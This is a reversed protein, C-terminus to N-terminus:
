SGSDTELLQTIAAKMEQVTKSGGGVYLRAIKGDKGVIVMQPIARAEYRHAAVGDIDLAVPVSLKHRELVSQVHDAPEELNISVLRVQEPDFDAMAEEVLPMTQMCPACWTAWFDLVVIKGKQESLVFREGDLMDLRIEPAQQGILASEIGVEGGGGPLDQAMLPEVAARLTWRNYPLVSVADRIGDGFLIQDVDGIEFRCTGLVDSTGAISKEDVQQPDFTVRKGDRKLVQALQLFPSVIEAPQNEDEAKQKALLEEPHFWIIQGVRDRPIEFEELQLEVRIMDDRFELLRCRLFDGNRSCLLHTPPSSKQLRPLTLLRKRKADQLNPPSLNPVLELAKVKNHPVLTDDAVATTISVGQENISSVLCPIVDGSRVHLKHADPGVPKAPKSDVKQLFLQGFNLGRKQQQLRLRQMQLAREATRQQQPNVPPPPERYIIKGSTGIRLSSASLCGFPLWRLASVGDAEQETAPVLHGTLKHPGLELRGSRGATEPQDPIPDRKMVILTRAMEHPVRVPTKFEESEIVWHKATISQIAGSIRTGDHLFMSSKAEHAGATASAIKVSVVDQVPVLIEDGDTGALVFENKEADLQVADGSTVTGDVRTMVIDGGISSKPIKGSWRSIRLRELRLTGSRNILRVGRGVKIADALDPPTGLEALKTGDSRFVQLHGTRQNLYVMLRISKKDALSDVKEVDAASDYERMVALTNGFTEFRWGDTRADKSSTHDAAIAVVFNPKDAWSVEFEVMALDPVNLNGNISADNQDTWLQAGDEMWDKPQWDTTSWDQIGALSAFVLTPNEEIRYMRRIADSRVAISGFLTSDIGVEADTWGVLRGSLLDGSILEFAFQGSQVMKERAAPFKISKVADSRIQFPEVFESGHWRIVDPSDSPVIQGAITNGNILSVVGEVKQEAPKAAADSTEDQSKNETTTGFDPGIRVARIQKPPQAPKAPAPQDQAPLPQPAILLAIVPLTRLASTM